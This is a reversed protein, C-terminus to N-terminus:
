GSHESMVMLPLRDNLYQLMEAILPEYEVQEDNTISGYHVTVEDPRFPETRDGPIQDLKFWVVKQDRSSAGVERATVDVHYTLETQHHDGYFEDFTIYFM